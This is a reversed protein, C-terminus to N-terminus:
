DTAIQNAECNLGYCQVTFSPPPPLVLRRLGHWATPGALALCGLEAVAWGVWGTGDLIWVFPACPILSCSLFDFVPRWFSGFLLCVEQSGPTGPCSFGFVFELLLWTGPCSFLLNMLNIRAPVPVPLVSLTRTHIKTSPQILTCVCIQTTKYPPAACDM